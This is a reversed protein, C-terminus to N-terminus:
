RIYLSLLQREHNGDHFIISRNHGYVVQHCKSNTDHKTHLTLIVLIVTRSSSCYVTYTCTGTASSATVSLTINGNPIPCVSCLTTMVACMEVFGEDEDVFYEANELTVNVDTDACCLCVTSVIVHKQGLNRCDHVYIIFLPVLGIFEAKCM